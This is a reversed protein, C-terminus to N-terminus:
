FVGLIESERKKKYTECLLLGVSTDVGTKFYNKTSLTVGRLHINEIELSKSCRFLYKKSGEQALSPLFLWKKTLKKANECIRTM